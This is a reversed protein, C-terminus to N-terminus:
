SGFTNEGAYRIYLFGDEDKCANYLAALSSSTPPLSNDVFVYIAKEPPLTLRKRIVYVYQGLTLDAPVLYKVKDIEPVDSSPEKECIVPVRDPYKTLIRTSEERRREFPHKCKYQFPVDRRPM